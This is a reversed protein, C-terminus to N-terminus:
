IRQLLPVWIGIQYIFAPLIIVALVVIRVNRKTLLGKKGKIKEKIM